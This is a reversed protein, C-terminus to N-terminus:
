LFPAETKQAPLRGCFFSPDDKQHHGTAVGGGRTTPEIIWGLLWVVAIGPRGAWGACRMLELLFFCSSDNRGKCNASKFKARAQHSVLLGQVVSKPSFCKFVIRLLRRTDM